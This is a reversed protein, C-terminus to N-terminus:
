LADALGKRTEADAAAVLESGIADLVRAAGIQAALAQVLRLHRHLPLDWTFGMGGHIQITGEIVSLGGQIAAVFAARRAAKPDACRRSLCRAIASRTTEVALCHRALHHRIAQNGSLPRGFQRREMAYDCTRKLCAEASGLAMAAALVMGHGRLREAEEATLVPGNPRAQVSFAAEPRGVDLGPGPSVEVGPAGRRLLQAGGDALFALVYDAEAGLPAGGLRGAGDSLMGDWAITANTEGAAIASALEPAPAALAEALLMTELLPFALLHAGAAELVPVAFALPLGLGGAEEPVLIGTLGAEALLRAREKFNAAEACAEMVARATAAFENPTLDHDQSM